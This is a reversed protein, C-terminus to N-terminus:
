VGNCLNVAEGRWLLGAMDHVSQRIVMNVEHRTLNFIYTGSTSSEDIFINRTILTALAPM